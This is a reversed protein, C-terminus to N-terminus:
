TDENLNNENVVTPEVKEIHDKLEIQEPQQLEDKVKLPLNNLSNDNLLNRIAHLSSLKNNYQYAVDENSLSQLGDNFRQNVTDSMDFYETLWLQIDSIVQKYLKSEQKSAAWQALQLKLVLNERLNQQYQPSMLPEVDATRRSITIFDALFKHWTKALNSRWDSANESLEFSENLETSKPIKVMALSLSKIQKEMAMLTLIVEETNLVPMLQLAEIDQHILQRIPLFEPSNLESIRQNADKLLNIAARTDQELWITRAAIRILYEAEHILWDSPQNQSLRAINNELSTIKQQSELQNASLTKELQLTLADKHEALLQIAQQKNNTTQQKLQTLLDQAFINHQQNQWYYLGGVGGLATLAIIFSLLATKSIKAPSKSQMNEKKISKTPIPKPKVNSNKQTNSSDTKVASEKASTESNTKNTHDSLTISASLGTTAKVVDVDSKDKADSTKKDIM